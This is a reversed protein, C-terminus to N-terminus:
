ICEKLIQLIEISSFQKACNERIITSQAIKRITDADLMEAIGMETFSLPLGMERIFSKMASLGEAAAELDSKGCVDVAWVRQAFNKFKHTNHRLLHGYVVPHLVALGEGHSCYTYAGLQHEIMHCQFDPKKGLKLLGNEAIASGWMLQARADIDEPNSKVKRMNSIISRMVAENVEDTIFSESPKGFYIEMAHSLSDFAGAMVQAMPVTLTLSPDLISFDPYLGYLDCKIKKEENTIVADNNQESGTGSATIVIGVPIADKPLRGHTLEMEWLDEETRAQAAIMKSCDSVSGGGVALILDINEKKAIQAGEQVKAYSPNPMIGGFDVVTKGAAELIAHIRDYLGSKRISSMGYTLMVRSGYSKLEQELSYSLCADGFWIRISRSYYFGDM